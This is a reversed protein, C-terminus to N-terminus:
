YQQTQSRPHQYPGAAPLTDHGLIHNRQPTTDFFGIETVRSCLVIM